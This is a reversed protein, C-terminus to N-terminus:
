LWGTANDHVPRGGLAAQENVGAVITGSQGGGNGSPVYGVRTCYEVSLTVVDLLV